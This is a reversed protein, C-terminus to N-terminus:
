IEKTTAERNKENNYANVRKMDLTWTNLYSDYVM